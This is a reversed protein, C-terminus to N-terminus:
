LISYVVWDRYKLQDCNPLYQRSPLMDNDEKIDAPQPLKWKGLSRSM